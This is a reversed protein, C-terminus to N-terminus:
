TLSLDDFNQHNVKVQDAGFDLLIPCDAFWEDTDLHGLGHNGAWERRSPQEGPQTVPAVEGSSRM